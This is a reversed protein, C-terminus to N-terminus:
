AHIRPMYAASQPRTETAARVVKSADFEIYRYSSPGGAAGGTTTAGSDFAGSTNLAYASFRGTINQLADSQASGM